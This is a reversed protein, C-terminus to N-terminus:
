WGPNNPLLNPNLYLQMLPISYLYHKNADFHRESEPEVILFGDEDTLGPNGSNLVNLTEYESGKYMIGKIPEKLEKEATKWRRLDDRRFGEFALEVCRERRIETLINLQYKEAFSNTLAPMNIGTRSRLVNITENLVDDSIYGDKEYTAEALILLVEAYRIIHYDYTAQTDQTKEEGIFKWLKYGTRTEPRDSFKPPCETIPKGQEFDTYLTGPILFTQSMRPDRNEFESNITQYGKFLSSKDIPLGDKCLYMDAMKRTPTGNWGWAFLSSANHTRINQYYRSSLIDEKSDDGAEIFLYRYSDNGKEEFLGYQHSDIVKRASIIAQELLYNIDNRHKHYKAWTGFFLSARARLAWAAGSTIRGKDIDQLENQLSLYSTIEQLEQLIFDEVEIRSNRKGMLEESDVNLVKTILPVDGFRKVLKWYQYARFFRAEAKYRDIESKDGNYSDYKEIIINANRIYKYANDWDPDSDLAIWSGNSEANANLAYCIDSNYDLTYSTNYGDLAINYLYNAATKFDNQTKWFLPDSLSEKPLLNIDQCSFLINCALIIYLIKKM